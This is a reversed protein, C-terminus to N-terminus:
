GVRRRDCARCRRAKCEHAALTRQAAVCAAVASRATPFSIFLGDSAADIRTGGQAAAAADVIRHHDLLLAAYEDGLLELLSTSREIGTFVLTVTGASWQEM